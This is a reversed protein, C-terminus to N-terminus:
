RILHDIGLLRLLGVTPIRYAAGVRVVPCPFSGARALAYATTRGIGLARRATELDVIAPLAEVESLTLVEADVTM